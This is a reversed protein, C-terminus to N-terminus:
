APNAKQWKVYAHDADIYNAAARILNEDKVDPHGVLAAAFFMSRDMYHGQKQQEEFEREVSEKIERVVAKLEASLAQLVRGMEEGAQELRQEPTQPPKEPTSSM